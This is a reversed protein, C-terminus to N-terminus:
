VHKLSLVVIESLVGLRLIFFQTSIFFFHTHLSGVCVVMDTDTERWRPNRRGVWVCGPSGYKKGLRGMHSDRWRTGGKEKKKADDELGGGGKGSEAQNGNPKREAM